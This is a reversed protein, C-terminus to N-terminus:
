EEQSKYFAKLNNHVTITAYHDPGLTHEYIDLSQHYYQEAQSYQGQQEHLQALKYLTAATQAHLPGLYQQQHELLRQYAPIAQTKQADTKYLTALTDVMRRVFHHNPGLNHLNNVLVQEYLPIAQTYKGQQQYLDALNKLSIATKPHKPGLALMTIELAQRFLPEAQQYQGQERYLQALNNLASATTPHSPGLALMTIELAQRFLPEAQQYKRQAQYLQALYNLSQATTPHSPGFIQQRIMLARLYFPEAQTFHYQTFETLGLAIALNASRLDQNQGYAQDCHYLHASIQQLQKLNKTDVLEHTQFVLLSEVQQQIQTQSHKIQEQTYYTILRHIRLQDGIQELLGLELLRQLAYHQVEDQDEDLPDYNGISAQLWVTLFPQNPAFYSAHALFTLALSDRETDLRQYSLDFSAQVGLVGEENSRLSRHKIKADRLKELYISPKGFESTAQSKLYRGALSLALPLDGLEQAIADADENSLDLRYTQLLKISDARELIGLTFRKLALDTPWESNRSTILVRSGGTAPVYQKIFKRCEAASLQDCNDFILLRPTPKRWEAQVRDVRESLSLEDDGQFLQLKIGCDAIENDINNTEAFSVWFVGGAFYCGYRHAFESALTSKGVGGIGTSILSNSGHKLEKALELLEDDRGVFSSARPQEFRSFAAIAQSNPAPVQNIPLDELRKLHVVSQDPLKPDNILDEVIGGYVRLKQKVQNIKAIENDLELAFNTPLYGKGFGAEKEKLIAYRKRHTELQELLNQIGAANPNQEM